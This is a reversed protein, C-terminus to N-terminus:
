NELNMHVLIRGASKSEFEPSSRVLTSIQKGRDFLDFIRQAVIRKEQGGSDYTPDDCMNQIWGQGLSGDRCKPETNQQKGQYKVHSADPSVPQACIGFLQALCADIRAQNQGRKHEQDQHISKQVLRGSGDYSYSINEVLLEVDDTFAASNPFDEFRAPLVVVPDGLSKSISYPM